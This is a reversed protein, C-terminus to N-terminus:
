SRTPMELAAPTARWVTISMMVFMSITTTMMTMMMFVSGSVNDADDDDGADGDDDYEGDDYDKSIVDCGYRHFMLATLMMLSTM